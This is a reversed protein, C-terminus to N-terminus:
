VGTLKDRIRDTPAQEGEPERVPRWEDMASLLFVLARFAFLSDPMHELVELYPRGAAERLQPELVELGPRASLRGATIMGTARGLGYTPDDRFPANCM